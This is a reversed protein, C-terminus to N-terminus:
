GIAGLGLEQMTRTLVEEHEETIHMIKESARAREIGFIKELRRREVPNEVKALETERQEEKSQEEELVQLLHENQQRRLAELSEM